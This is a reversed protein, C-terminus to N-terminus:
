RSKCPIEIAVAMAMLVIIELITIWNGDKLLWKM